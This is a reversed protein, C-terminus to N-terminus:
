AYSARANDIATVASGSTTASGWRLAAGHGDSALPASTTATLSFTGDQRLWIYRTSSAPLTLSVPADWGVWTPALASGAAISVTLGASTTITGGGLAGPAVVRELLAAMLAVRAELAAVAANINPRFEAATGATVRQGTASFAPHKPTPTISAM